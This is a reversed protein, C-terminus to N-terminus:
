SQAAPRLPQPSRPRDDPPRPRSPPPPYEGPEGRREDCREDHEGEQEGARPAAPAHRDEDKGEERDREHEQAVPVRAAPDPPPGPGRLQQEQGAAARARASPRAVQQPQASAGVCPRGPAPGPVLDIELVAVRDPHGAGGGLPEGAPQEGLHEEVLGARRARRGRRPPDGRTPGGAGVAGVRVRRPCRPVHADDLGGGRGAHRRGGASTPVDDDGDAVAGGGRPAVRHKRGTLVVADPRGPEAPEEARDVVACMRVAVQRVADEEVLEDAREGPRRHHAPPRRRRPEPHRDSAVAVAHDLDIEDAVARVGQQRPRGPGALGLGEHRPQRRERRAGRGVQEPEHQDVVLAPGRESREAREGVDRGDEGVEVGRAGRAREGREGRLQPSTLLHQGGRPDLVDRLEMPAPLPHRPEDDDDVLEPREGVLVGGQQGVEHPEGRLPPREAQVEHERRLARGPDHRGVHARVHGEPQAQPHQVRGVRAVDDPLRGGCV